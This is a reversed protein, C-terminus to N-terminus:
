GATKCCRNLGRVYPSSQCWAAAAYCTSNLKVVVKSSLVKKDHTHGSNDSSAAAESRGELKLYLWNLQQACM